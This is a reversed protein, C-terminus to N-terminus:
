EYDFLEKLQKMFNDELSLITNRYEDFEHYINEYNEIMYHIQNVIMPVHEKCFSIKYKQPIPVDGNFASAGKIGTLIACGFLVAEKPIREAGPFPGFDIYLKASCYNNILEDQTMGVLPIFSIDKCHKKLLDVAKGSKKPNYLVVNKRCGITIKRQTYKILFPRSIPEICKYVKKDSRHSVYDFAYFSACMHFDIVKEDRNYFKYKKSLCKLIIDDKFHYKRRPYTVVYYPLYSVFNFIRDFISRKYYNFDVSLWWVIKKAKSFNNLYYLHTEPFIIYTDYDDPVDCLFCFDKCYIQYHEPINITENPSAIYALKADIGIQRLYFVIQHLAEPGGTVAGYPCVVFIKM